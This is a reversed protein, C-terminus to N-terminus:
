FASQRTTYGRVMQMQKLHEFLCGLGVKEGMHPPVSKELVQFVVNWGDDGAAVLLGERPSRQMPAVHLVCPYVRISRRAFPGNQFDTELCTGSCAQCQLKIGKVLLSTM